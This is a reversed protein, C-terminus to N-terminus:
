ELDCVSIQNYSGVLDFCKLSLPYLSL